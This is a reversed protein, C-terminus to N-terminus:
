VNNAIHHEFNLIRLKLKQYFTHKFFANLTPEIYNKFLLKNLAARLDLYAVEVIMFYNEGVYVSSIEPIRDSEM